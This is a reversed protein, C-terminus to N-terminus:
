VTEKRAVFKQLKTTSTDKITRMAGKEVLREKYLKRIDKHGEVDIHKLDYKLILNEKEDESKENLYKDWFKKYEDREKAKDWYVKTSLLKVNYEEFLNFFAKYASERKMKTNSKLIIERMQNILEKYCEEAAALPFSHTFITRTINILNAKKFIIDKADLKGIISSEYQEYDKKIEDNTSTELKLPVISIVYDELAKFIKETVNKEQKETNDMLNISYNKLLGKYITDMKEIYFKKYKEQTEKKKVSIANMYDVKLLYEQKKYKYELYNKDKLSVVLYYKSLHERELDSATNNKIKKYVTDMIYKDIAELYLAYSEEYRQELAEKKSSEEINQETKYENYVKLLANRKFTIMVNNFGVKTPILMKTLTSSLKSFFTKNTDIVKLSRQEM